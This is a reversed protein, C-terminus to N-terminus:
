LAFIHSNCQSSRNQAQTTEFVIYAYVCSIPGSSIKLKLQKFTNSYLLAEVSGRKKTLIFVHMNQKQM